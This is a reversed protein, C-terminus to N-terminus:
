GEDKSKGEDRKLDSMGIYHSDQHIGEKRGRSPKECGDWAM